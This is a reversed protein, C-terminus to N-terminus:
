RILIVTAIVGLLGATAGIVAASNRDFWGRREVFIQDGSHLDAAAMPGDLATRAIVTVGDRVVRIHSADGEATVGGAYAVAQAFTGLPDAYYIGPNDVSGLVYVRRLPILGVDPERLERAFAARLSDRVEGWPRGAVLRTGVLPFVTEGRDNVLFEGSLNPERWLTVRVADGPQLVIRDAPDQAALPSAVLLSLM